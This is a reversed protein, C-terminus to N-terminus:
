WDWTAWSCIGSMVYQINRVMYEIESSFTSKLDINDLLVSLPRDRSLVLWGRKGDTWELCRSAAHCQM